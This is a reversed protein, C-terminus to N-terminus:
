TLAAYATMMHRDIQRDTRRDTPRDSVLPLEVFVALGLIV